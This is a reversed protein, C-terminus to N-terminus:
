RRRGDISFRGPGSTALLLLGGIIAVNKLAHHLQNMYQNAPVPWFQHGLYLAVGTFVALALAAGDHKSGSIILGAVTEFTAVLWAVIQSSPM